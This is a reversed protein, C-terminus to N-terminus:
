KKHQAIFNGLEVLSDKSSFRVGFRTPITEHKDNKSYLRLWVHPMGKFISIVLRVEMKDHSNIVGCDYLEDDVLNKSEMKAVEKFVLDLNRILKNMASQYLRLPNFPDANSALAYQGYGADTKEYEIRCYTLNLTNESSVPESLALSKFVIPTTEM